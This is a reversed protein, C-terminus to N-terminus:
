KASAADREIKIIREYVSETYYRLRGYEFEPAPLGGRQVHCWVTVKNRGLANALDAMSYLRILRKGDNITKV